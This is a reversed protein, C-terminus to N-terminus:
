GALVPLLALCAEATRGICGRPEALKAVEEYAALVEAARSGGPLVQQLEAAIRGPNADRDLLEALVPRRLLINPLSVFEFKPRRVRYELATRWDGRYMVVQPCGLLAAELTATGSCVIAAACRQLPGYAGSAFRADGGVLPRVDAECLSPALGVTIPLGVIRAAGAAAALNARVEHKRSGPLVAIRPERPEPCPPPLLDLLPHGYFRADAGQERLLEASWPFPTVVVDSLRAVDSGQRDRRWSGPPVFYLVRWGRQRAQRALRVNVYGFDIPVFVGPCGWALARAATRYGRAVAPAVQVSEIVGVAGWGRSDAVTEAGAAELKAGGVARIPGEFGRARLAQAIAAGYADGSAEGASIFVEPTV